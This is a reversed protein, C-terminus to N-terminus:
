NYIRNRGQKKAIYLKQDAMMIYEEIVRKQFSEKPTIAIMGMSVTASITKNEHEIHSKSFNERISELVELGKTENVAPLIILFEEGGYRIIIDSNRLKKQVTLVFHKLVKDGAIHGYTDNIHKFHDLDCLAIVFTNFTALALEYQSEFVSELANRNLAGTLADKAIKQNMNIQDLLALETGIGLSILECKELYTILIHYERLDLINYIKKAFLHLNTHMTILAKYKSNNKIVMKADSHLWRGFTCLKENLEPFHKKSNQKIHKALETLWELHAEYHIILHKDILDSLSHRRITNLSILKDIYTILYLHAVTNNIERFLELIKAIDKGKANSNLHAILINKLGYLENSMVVYPIDISIKFEALEQFISAIEHSEFPQALLEFVKTYYRSVTEIRHDGDIKICATYKDMFDQLLHQTDHLILSLDYRM